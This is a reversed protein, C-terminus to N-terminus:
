DSDVEKQFEEVYEKIPIADIYVEDLVGVGDKVYVLGYCTKSTDQQAKRVSIEADYAKNENMYFRDFPLDFYITCNYNYNSEAVVYDYDIPLPIKSVTKVEAFGLTDKKLYVYAMGHYDDWGDENTEFSNLAYDLTIYKGRFPDSPDIPQTKFKYPTGVKLTDEQQYIMQAPVLLQLVFLGFLLFTAITKNM